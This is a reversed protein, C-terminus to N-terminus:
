SIRHERILKHSNGYAWHFLQFCSQLGPLVARYSDCHDLCLSFLLRGDILHDSTLHGDVEVLPDPTNTELFTGGTGDLLNTGEGLLLHASLINPDVCGEVFEDPGPTDPANWEPNTDAKSPSSIFILVGGVLKVGQDAPHRNRSELLQM